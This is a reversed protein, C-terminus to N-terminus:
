LIIKGRENEDWRHRRRKMKTSIAADLLRLRPAACKIDRLILFQGNWNLQCWRWQECCTTLFSCPGEAKALMRATAMNYNGIKRFVKLLFECEECCQRGCILKRGSLLWSIFQTWSQRCPICLSKLRFRLRNINRTGHAIVTCSTHQADYQPQLSRLTYM